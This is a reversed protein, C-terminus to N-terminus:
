CKHRCGRGGNAAGAGDHHYEWHVVASVNMRLRSLGRKVIVGCEDTGEGSASLRVFVTGCAVEVRTGWLHGMSRYAAKRHRLDAAAAGDDTSVASVM